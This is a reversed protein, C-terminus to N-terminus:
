LPDELERRLLPPIRCSVVFCVSVSVDIDNVWTGEDLPPLEAMGSV